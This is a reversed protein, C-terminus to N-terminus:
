LIFSVTAPAAETAAATGADAAETAAFKQWVHESSQQRDRGINLPHINFTLKIKEAIITTTTMSLPKNKRRQTRAEYEVESTNALFYISYETFLIVYTSMSFIVVSEMQFFLYVSNFFACWQSRLARRDFVSPAVCILYGCMSQTCWKKNQKKEKQPSFLYVIEMQSFAFLQLDFPLFTNLTTTICALSRARRCHYSGINWYIYKGLQCRVYISEHRALLRYYYNTALCGLM